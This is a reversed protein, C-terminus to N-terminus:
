FPTLEYKAGRAAGCGGKGGRRFRVQPLILPWVVAENLLSKSSELGVIDDFQIGVGDVVDEMIVQVFKSDERDMGVYETEVAREEESLNWVEDNSM